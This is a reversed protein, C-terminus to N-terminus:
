PIILQMLLGDAMMSASVVKAHANVQELYQYHSAWFAGMASHIHLLTHYWRIAKVPIAKARQFNFHFAHKPIIYNSFSIANWGFVSHLIALCGLYMYSILLSHHCGDHSPELIRVSLCFESRVQISLLLARVHNFVYYALSLKDTPGAITILYTFGLLPILVLM